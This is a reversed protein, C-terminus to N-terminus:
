SGSPTICLMAASKYSLLVGGICLMAIAQLEGIIDYLKNLEYDHTKFVSDYMNLEM